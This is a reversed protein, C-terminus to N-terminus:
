TRSDVSRQENALTRLDDATTGPGGISDRTRERAKEIKAKMEPADLREPSM